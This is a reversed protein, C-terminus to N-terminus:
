PEYRCAECYAGVFESVFPALAWAFFVVFALVELALRVHKM